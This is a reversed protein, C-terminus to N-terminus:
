MYIEKINYYLANYKLYFYVLYEMANGKETTDLIKEVAAEWASFSEYNELILCNKKKMM